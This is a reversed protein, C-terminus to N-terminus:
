NKSAIESVILEKVASSRLSVKQKQLFENYLDRLRSVPIENFEDHQTARCAIASIIKINEEKGTIRLWGGISAIVRRRWMNPIRSIENIIKKITDEDLENIHEVGYSKKIRMQMDKNTGSVECVTHYMRILKTKNDIAKM